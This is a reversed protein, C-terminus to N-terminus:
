PETLVRVARGLVALDSARVEQKNAGHSVLVSEGVLPQCRRWAPLGAIVLLYIGPRFVTHCAVDAFIYDGAQVDPELDHHEMRFVVFKSGNPTRDGLASPPVSWEVNKAEKVDPGPFELELGSAAIRADLERIPVTGAPMNLAGVVPEQDGVPASLFRGVSM